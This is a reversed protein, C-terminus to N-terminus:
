LTIRFRLAEGGGYAAAKEFREVLLGDNAQIVRQSAPNDPTTTIEVSALGRRWAEGLMLALARTALGRGRQWPVIAFGIHGLVYPPLADTGPQWRFGISGCFTDTWIWRVIGPLRHVTSGDPLKVPAGRADPDDLSALFGDADRAIWALQEEAATRGRVNDPSWDRRLAEVYAPLHEAAPHVLRVEAGSM